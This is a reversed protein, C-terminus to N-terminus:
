ALTDGILEVVLLPLVVRVELLWIIKVLEIPGRVIGRFLIFM